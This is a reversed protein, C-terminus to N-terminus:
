PHNFYFEIIQLYLYIIYLVGIGVCFKLMLEIIEEISM